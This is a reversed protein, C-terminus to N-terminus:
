MLENMRSQFYTPYKEIVAITADWNQKLAKIVEKKQTASLNLSTAM